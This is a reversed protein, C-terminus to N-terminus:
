KLLEDIQEKLNEYTPSDTLKVGNLFFTPTSSVGASEGDKKDDAIKQAATKSEVFANYQEMNLGIEKAYGAFIGTPDSSQEWDAQKEYLKDHMQWYDNQEGAAEAAEAAIEANSHQPLPFNRFVFTIKDGYEDLIQQVEPHAAACAPCQYDGFEVLTVKANEAVIKNSNERILVSTDAPESENSGSILAIVGFIALCVIGIGLLMKIETKM